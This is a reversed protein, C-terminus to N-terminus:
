VVFHVCGYFRYLLPIMIIFCVVSYYQLLLRSCAAVIQTRAMIIVKPGPDAPVMADCCVTYDGHCYNNDCFCFGYNDNTTKANIDIVIVVGYKYELHSMRQEYVVTYVLQM